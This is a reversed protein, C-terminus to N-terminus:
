KVVKISDLNLNSTNKLSDEMRKAEKEKRRKELKDRQLDDFVLFQKTTLVKRLAADRKKYIDIAGLRATNKDPQTAYLSDFQRSVQLNISFILPEQEPTVNIEKVMEDTYFRAKEEPSRKKYTQGQTSLTFFIFLLFLLRQNKKM